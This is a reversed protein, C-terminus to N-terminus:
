LAKDLMDISRQVRKLNMNRIFFRKMLKVCCYAKMFLLVPCIYSSIRIAHIM